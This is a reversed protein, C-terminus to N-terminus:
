ISVRKKLVEVEIYVLTVLDSEKAFVTKCYSRQKSNQYILGLRFLSCELESLCDGGGVQGVVVFTIKLRVIVEDIPESLERFVFAFILHIDTSKQAFHQERTFLYKFFAIHKGSSLFYSAHYRSHHQCTSIHQDQVLRRIM